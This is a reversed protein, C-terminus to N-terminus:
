DRPIHGGNEDYVAQTRSVMSTLMKNVVALPISMAARKLRAKFADVSERAPAKQKDMRTQVEEWLSYDCPNLDPSYTPFDMPIIGLDAKAKKSVNAKYGTPDNDELIVYRRKTGHHKKLAPAIIDRYIASATDGCWPGDFYYLVRVKGQITGACVNTSGLNAKHKRKDHKTYGKKLGECRKRLHGRVRSQKIYKKGRVSTSFPWKKNDMYLCVSKTWYSAPLKRLKNCIRKREAEDIDNRIPKLRPNRRKIGFTGKMRKAATSADGEPVRSKRIIEDWTVEWSGDAKVILEDRKRDMTALNAASWLLKRGRAEVGSRKFTDGKLSRRVTTLAPRKQRRRKRDKVLRAQINVPTAKEAKLKQITDLEDDTFHAGMALLVALPRVFSRSLVVFRSSCVLSWPIM